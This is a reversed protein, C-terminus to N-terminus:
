WGTYVPIYLPVWTSSKQQGSKTTLIVEEDLYRDFCVDYKSLDLHTVNETVDEGDLYFKYDNKVAYNLKDSTSNDPTYTSLSYLVFTVLMMVLAAIYYNCFKNM